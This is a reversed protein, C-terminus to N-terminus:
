PQKGALWLNITSKVTFITSKIKLVVIIGMKSPQNLFWFKIELVMRFCTYNANDSCWFCWKYGLWLIIFDVMNQQNAPFCGNKHNENGIHRESYRYMNCQQMNKSIFKGLSVHTYRKSIAFSIIPKLFELAVIYTQVYEVM